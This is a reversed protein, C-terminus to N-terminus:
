PMKGAHDSFRTGLSWQYGQEMTGVQRGLSCQACPGGRLLKAKELVRVTSGKASRRTLVNSLYVTNQDRMRAARGSLNIRRDQSDRLQM